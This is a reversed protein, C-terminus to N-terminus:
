FVADEIHLIYSIDLAKSRCTHYKIFGIQDLTIVIFGLGSSKLPLIIYTANRWKQRRNDHM